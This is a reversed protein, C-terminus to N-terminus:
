CGFLQGCVLAVLFKSARRLGDMPWKSVIKTLLRASAYQCPGYYCQLSGDAPKATIVLSGQGNTAANDTGDTYYELEDNGWGPIGYVTGDGLERGWVDTNPANGARSNFEDSWVLKWKSPNYSDAKNNTLNVEIERGSNQGYYWFGLGSAATWDQGVPFTRGFEYSGQGNKQGAQLIHEYAGQSPLALPDNAPIEPNSLTAKKDVSWLYPYSKLDDLLPPFYAENDMVNLTSRPFAWLQM